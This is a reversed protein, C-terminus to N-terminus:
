KLKLAVRERHIIYLKAALIISGGAFVPWGPVHHWILVDFLSAWVLGTMNFPALVSAPAASFSKTLTYQALGGSIGLALYLMLDHWSPLGSNFWPMLLGAFFAGSLIFYFTITLSSESKMKRLIVHIVSHFLAATLAIAVGLAQVEGTPRAILIVGALGIIITIWRRWGIYEKLFFFSLAPIILSSTMFLVTADAIPLYDLALFTVALGTTGLIVRTLMWGPKRTKLIDFRRFAMMYILLPVLAVFNRIFVIEVVHHTEMLLKAIASMLSLLFFAAIAYVIGQMVNDTHPDIAPREFETM